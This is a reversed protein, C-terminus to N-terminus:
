SRIEQCQSYQAGPTLGVPVCELNVNMYLSEAIHIPTHRFFYRSFHTVPSVNQVM